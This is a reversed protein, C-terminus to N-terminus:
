SRRQTELQGKEALLVDLKANLQALDALKDVLQKQLQDREEQTLNLKEKTRDLLDRASDLESSTSVLTATIASKEESLQLQERAGKNLKTHLFIAIVMILVMTFLTVDNSAIWGALGAESSRSTVKELHM